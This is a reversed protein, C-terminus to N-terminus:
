QGQHKTRSFGFSQENRPTRFCPSQTFCSKKKQQDIKYVLQEIREVPTSQPVVEIRIPDQNLISKALSAITPPMTASFFLNQRAPPLWHIIKKIDQIFGMDLM